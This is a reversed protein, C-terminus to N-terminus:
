ASPSSAPVAVVFTAGGGPTDTVHISGGHATLSSQPLHGIFFRDLLTNVVQLSNLAVAPWALAWVVRVSSEAEHQEPELEAVATM